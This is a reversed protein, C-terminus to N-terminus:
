IIEYEKGWNLNRLSEPIDSTLDPPLISLYIGGYKNFGIVYWEGISYKKVGFSYYISKVKMGIEFPTNNCDTENNINYNKM